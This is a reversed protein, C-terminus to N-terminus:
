LPINELYVFSSSGGVGIRSITGTFSGFMYCSLSEPLKHIVCLPFDPSHM